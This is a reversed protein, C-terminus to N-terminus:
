ACLVLKLGYNLIKKWAASEASRAASWAASEASEASRAASEAALRNEETPFKAWKLAALIAKRPRKDKPFQKEFLHLSQKASYCAYQVAQKHSLFKTITWNAWAFKDDKILAKIVSLLDSNSQNLFWTTGDSCANHENLWEKTIVKPKEVLKM